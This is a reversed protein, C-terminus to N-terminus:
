KFKCELVTDNTNKSKLFEYKNVFKLNDIMLGVDLRINEPPKENLNVSWFQIMIKGEKYPKNKNHYKVKENNRGSTFVVLCDNDDNANKELDISRVKGRNNNNNNNNREKKGKKKPLWTCGSCYSGVNLINVEREKIDIPKENITQYLELNEIYRDNVKIKKIKEEPFYDGYQNKIIIIQNM